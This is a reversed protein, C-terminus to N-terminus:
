EFFCKLNANIIYHKYYEINIFLYITVAKFIM